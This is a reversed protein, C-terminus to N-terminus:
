TRFWLSYIKTYFFRLGSGYRIFQQPFLDLDQVMAFVNKRFFFDLDQAMAFFQQKFFFNYTRLWLSSITTSFFGLDQAMTFIFQLSNFLFRLGSGYHLITTQSFFELDQAMDLFYKHFFFELDQAM